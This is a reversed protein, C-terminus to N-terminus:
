EIAAARRLSAIMSTGLLHTYAAKPDAATKRLEDLRQKRVEPDREELLRKNRISMAQVFEITVGRRQRVYRELLADADGGDRIERLKAALNVADHVASNLGMAGLPNNIHAADGLLVVRGARFTKAVRQHVRYISHYPIEADGLGPQFGHLRERVFPLSLAIDDPTEPQVPIALRWLGPPGNHPMKFIAAWEVPDAIYANMAFGHRALDYVCSAVLYREPWTFGEFEVGMQKRVGSRGGDAGILYGADITETGGPGHITVLIRDDHQEYSVFETSFRLDLNPLDDSRAGLFRTLRHQEVHLRYPYPTDNKLLGLDFEAIVGARRDRVQWVPVKIGAERMAEGVGLADFMEVTPPHFSGARLDVPFEPEREIVVVDFASQALAVAVAMGGPGGGAVVIPLRDPM